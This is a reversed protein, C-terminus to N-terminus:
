KGPTVGLSAMYDVVALVANSVIPALGNLTTLDLPKGAADALQVQVCAARAAKNLGNEWTDTGPPLKVVNAQAFAQFSVDIVDWVSCSARVVQLIRAADATAAPAGGVSAPPPTVCGALMLAAAAIAILRFM